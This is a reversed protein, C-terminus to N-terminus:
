NRREPRRKYPGLRILRRQAKVSVLVPFATRYCSERPNGYYTVGVLAMTKHYPSAKPLRFGVVAQAEKKCYGNFRAGGTKDGYNIKLDLRYASVNDKKGSAYTVELDKVSRAKVAVELDQAYKDLFLPLLRKKLRGIKGQLEKFSFPEKYWSRVKVPYSPRKSDLDLYYLQPVAQYQSRDDTLFYVKHDKLDYGLVIMGSEGEFGAQAPTLCGLTLLAFIISLYQKKM